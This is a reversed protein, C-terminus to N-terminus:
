EPMQFEARLTSLPLASVERLMLAFKLGAADILARGKVATAAAANGAAGAPNYDQM